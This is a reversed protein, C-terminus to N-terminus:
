KQALVKHQTENWVNLQHKYIYSAGQYYALNRKMHPDDIDAHQSIPNLSEPNLLQMLKQQPAIISLLGTTYLGLNQYNGILAREDEKKMTLVNKGFFKSEYGINLLALLTPALDIQSSVKNVLGAQINAPSYIYLPIHYKNVSLASKGASSATHDAVFVFVTDDFWPKDQSRKLFDGIAWDSYKIAGDRGSGPPLDIRGEPYTYPRHNSTTMIHFFFPTDRQNAKDAANIAQDYLYEDAMGWANEFGIETEPTSSQDIIDYGNGAFFTNMNDFYGRGGYLFKTDYGKEKLVNGLSWMNSENGLRKVISRGPTPPISLTVAELGRTTRTGTAYFRTFLLSDTTLSDLTPTLGKTGGYAGVFEASLSEIMVLMVNLRKEPRNIDPTVTRQINFIKQNSFQSSPEAIESRLVSSAQRDDITPYFQYYDLENNRFASFFQYPGNGALENQYNNNFQRSTDTSTIFFSFVPLLLLCGSIAARRRFSDRNTLAKQIPTYLKWYIAITIALMVSLIPIVPYSELINNTVERRYVLYDVSIFNFRAKFELWFLIEAVLIFLLGYVAAFCTLHVLIRNFTSLWINNPTLLLYLCFPTLAYAFFAIDNIIGISYIQILSQLSLDAEAPSLLILITRTLAFLIMMVIFISLMIFYRSQAINSLLATRKKTM